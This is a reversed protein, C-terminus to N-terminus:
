YSLRKEALAIGPKEARLARRALGQAGARAAILIRAAAGRHHRFRWGQAAQRDARSLEFVEHENDLASDGFYM